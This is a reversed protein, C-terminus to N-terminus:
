WSGPGKPPKSIGALMEGVSKDKAELAIDAQSVVGVLRDEDDVVPLRRVQHQAMLQLADSCITILGWRLSSARRSRWAYRASGERKAIARVVIDRDTIM